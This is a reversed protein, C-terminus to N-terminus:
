HSVDANDAKHSKSTTPMMFDNKSDYQRCDYQHDFQVKIQKTAQHKQLNTLPQHSVQNPSMITFFFRLHKDEHEENIDILAEIRQIRTNLDGAFQYLGDSISRLDTLQEVSM